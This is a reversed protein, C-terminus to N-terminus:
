RTKVCYVIRFLGRAGKFRTRLVETPVNYERCKQLIQRLSFIQDMTARSEMFGAQYPGVFGTVLPSLRRCLVQSLVKYAANILTLGRFNCCNLRDGKKYIPCVVGDMWEEPLKEEDWIKSIM